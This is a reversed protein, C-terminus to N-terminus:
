NEELDEEMMDISQECLWQADPHRRLKKHMRYFAELELDMDASPIDSVRVIHEPLMVADGAKKLYDVIFLMEESGPIDEAFRIRHKILISRKFIKNWIFGQYHFQHFLRCLMDDRDLVRRNFEPTEYVKEGESYVEYGFGAMGYKKNEIEGCAAEIADEDYKAGPCAFILYKARSNKIALNRAEAFNKESEARIIEIDKKM